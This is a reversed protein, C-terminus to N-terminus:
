RTKRWVHLYIGSLYVSIAMFIAIAVLLPLSLAYLRKPVGPRDIYEFSFTDGAQASVYSSYERGILEVLVAKETPRTEQDVISQYSRIRTVYDSRERQRILRDAQELLNRMLETQGAAFGNTIKIQLFGEPTKSIKTSARVAEVLRESPDEVIPPKGFTRRASQELALSIKRTPSPRVLAAAVDPHKRQLTAVANKLIETSQILLGLQEFTPRQGGGALAALSGLTGANFKRDENAKATIVAETMFRDATRAYFIMALAVLVLLLVALWAVKSRAVQWFMSFTMLADRDLPLTTLSPSVLICGDIGNARRRALAYDNAMSRRRGACRDVQWTSLRQMITKECSMKEAWAAPPTERHM